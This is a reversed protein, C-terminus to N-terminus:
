KLKLGIFVGQNTYIDMKYRYNKLYTIGLIYFVPIIRRMDNYYNTLEEDQSDRIHYLIFTKGIRDSTDHTIEYINKIFDILKYTHNPLEDNKYLKMLKINNQPIINNQKNNVTNMVAKLERITRIEEAEAQRRNDCKFEKLKLCELVNGDEM